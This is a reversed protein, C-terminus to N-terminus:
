VPRMEVIPLSMLWHMAEGDSVRLVDFRTRFEDTDFRVPVDFQGAWRVTDGGGAVVSFTV